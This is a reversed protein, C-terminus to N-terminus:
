SLNGNVKHILVKEKQRHRIDVQEAMNTRQQIHIRKNNVSVLLSYNKDNYHLNENHHNRLRRREFMFM